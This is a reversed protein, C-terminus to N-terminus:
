SRAQNRPDGFIIGEGCTAEELSCGPCVRKRGLFYPRAFDKRGDVRTLIHRGCEREVYGATCKGQSKLLMM